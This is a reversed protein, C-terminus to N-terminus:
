EWDSEYDSPNVWGTVLKEGAKFRQYFNRRDAESYQYADFIEGNGMIRPDEQAMLEQTMQQKLTAKLGQYEPNDALNNMCDADLDLRYLEEAGRKGFSLQWFIEKGPQHRANLCITKTPSGDVNLYGTTPHGSPWRGPEFNQLFLFNDKVIGRIPYGWDNPRGIDHREKGILVFNRTPNIQGSRDSYFLDTLSKGQMPQMRGKGFDIGAVELFTPAFDIFSVYDDVVRGPSQIGNKWMVALPLHNSSEYEQGKVRPFPMGNDATVIVLTNDLEGSEDLQQLIQTLHQDFYEIEFAYDLMDTRTSDNDPWYPPVRDIDETKKGGKNIGAGFEYRRHPEIGGYWFCFPKDEPRNELFASFNAQYDNNSMARAPPVTQHEQYGKGTLERRRGDIEGPNGPAWGKGTFGVEYGNAALAEVFTRFKGPFNPVHNAAEELQWSNRGTLICARSPSCKANPTYARTFLLGESAVRDFAPTKVWSCGYAGTHPYSQDDSIAFLINPREPGAPTRDTECSWISLIVTIVLIGPIGRKRNSSRNM